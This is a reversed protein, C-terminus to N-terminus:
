NKGLVPASELAIEESIEDSKKRIYSFIPYNDGVIPSFGLAFQFHMGLCFTFIRTQELVFHVKSGFHFHTKAGFHRKTGMIGNKGSVVSDM